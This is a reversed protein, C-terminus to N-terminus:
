QENTDLRRIQGRIEGAPANTTHVNAYATNSTLADELADFNGAPVLQAPVALISSATITGTVTGGNAPCTPTGAPGNGLNTCLFVIIGGAVRAKAFHIHAQTVPASLNSYTLTYNAMAAKTDLDISFTGTGDSLIAPTENFGSLHASFEKAHAAGGWLVVVGATLMAILRHWHM